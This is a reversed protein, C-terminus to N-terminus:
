SIPIRTNVPSMYSLISDLQQNRQLRHPSIENLLHRPMEQM